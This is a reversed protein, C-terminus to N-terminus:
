KATVVPDMFTMRAAAIGRFSKGTKSVAKQIAEASGIIRKFRKGLSPKTMMWGDPKIGLRELIPAIEAPINGKGERLHRGTQDVVELYETTTIQNQTAEEISLLPVEAWSKAHNPREHTLQHVRDQGSTHDSAEITEAARARIPNLDVYAACTILASVDEIRQCKFRGEWFRGTCNDEINARRAINENLCRNFWSVSCLRERYLEVLIPSKVIEQIDRESDPAKGDKRCIPFLLRWRRAVEEATWEKAVDPRITLLTHLHNIMVAYSVADVAFITLLLALRERVWLKRHEFSKKSYSDNGCLYARRVCRSMCHYTSVETATVVESRAQTM